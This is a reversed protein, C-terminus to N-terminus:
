LPNVTVIQNTGPDFAERHAATSPLFQAIGQAGKNNPNDDLCFKSEDYIQRVFLTPFSAAIPGPLQDQQAYYQAAQLATSVYQQGSTVGASCAFNFNFSSNTGVGLEGQAVLSGGLSHFLISGGIILALPGIGLVSA